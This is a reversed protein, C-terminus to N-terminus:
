TGLDRIKYSKMDKEKPTHHELDILLIGGGMSVDKVEVNESVAFSTKFKRSSIGKHIYEINESDKDNTNNGEIILNGDELLVSINDKDFGAIAVEIKYNNGEKILNYPPYKSVRNGKSLNDFIDEFGISLSDFVDFADRLNNMNTRRKFCTKLAVNNDVRNNHNPV